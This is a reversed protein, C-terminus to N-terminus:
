PESLEKSEFVWDELRFATGHSSIADETQVLDGKAFLAWLMTWEIQPNPDQHIDELQATIDKFADDIFDLLTQLGSYGKRAEPTTASNEPNTSAALLERLAKRQNYVYRADVGPKLGAFGSLGHFYPKVLETISKSRFEIWIHDRYARKSDKRNYAIIKHFKTLDSFKPVRLVEAWDDKEYDWSQECTKLCAFHLIGQPALVPQEDSNPIQEPGPPTQPELFSPGEEVRTSTSDTSSPQFRVMFKKFTALAM